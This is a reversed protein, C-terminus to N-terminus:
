LKEWLQPFNTKFYMECQTNSDKINKAKIFDIIEGHWWEIEKPHKTDFHSIKFEGQKELNIFYNYANDIKLVSEVPISKTSLRACPINPQPIVESEDVEVQYIYGKKGQYEKRFADPYLEDYIPLMMNDKKFGYPYWYYPRGVSNVIYLATVAPITALYIYEVGHDALFPKLVKLNPTNSGHYLKM